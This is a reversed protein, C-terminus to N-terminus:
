RKKLKKYVLYSAISVAFISLVLLINIFISAYNIANDQEKKVHKIKEVNPEEEPVKEISDVEKKNDKILYNEDIYDTENFSAQHKEKFSIANQVRTKTHKSSIKPEIIKVTMIALDGSPELLFDFKEGNYNVFTSVSGIINFSDNAKLYYGRVQGRCMGDAEAFINEDAIHKNADIKLHCKKANKLENASLDNSVAAYTNFKPCTFLFFCAMLFIIPAKVRVINM